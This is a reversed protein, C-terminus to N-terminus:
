TYQVFTSLSTCIVFFFQVELVKKPDIHKHVTCVGKSRVLVQNAFLDQKKEIAYLVIVVNYYHLFLSLFFKNHNGELATTPSNPSM